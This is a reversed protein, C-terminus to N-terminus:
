EYSHGGKHKKPRLNEQPKLEAIDVELSSILM